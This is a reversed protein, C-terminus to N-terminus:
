YTPRPAKQWKLTLLYFKNSPDGSISAAPARPQLQAFVWGDNTGITLKAHEGRSFDSLPISDVFARPNSSSKTSQDWVYDFRGDIERFNHNYGDQGGLVVRPSSGVYALMVWFDWFKGDVQVGAHVVLSENFALQKHHLIADAKQGEDYRSFTNNLQNHVYLDRTRIEDPAEIKFSKLVCVDEYEDKCYRRSADHKLYLTTAKQSPDDIPVPM